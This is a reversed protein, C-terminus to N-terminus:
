GGPHAGKDGIMHPPWKADVEVLVRWKALHEVDHFEAGPDLCARARRRVRMGPVTLLDDVSEIGNLCCDIAAVARHVLIKREV